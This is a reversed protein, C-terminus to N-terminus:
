RFVLLLFGIYYKREEWCKPESTLHQSALSRALCFHSGANLTETTASHLYHMQIWYVKMSYSAQNCLLLTWRASKKMLDFLCPCSAFGVQDGQNQQNRKLCLFKGASRFLWFHHALSYVYPNSLPIPHLNPFYCTQPFSFCVNLPAMISDLTMKNLHQVDTRTYPVVLFYHLDIWDFYALQLLCRLWSVLLRCLFLFLQKVLLLSSNHFGLCCILLLIHTDFRFSNLYLGLRHM